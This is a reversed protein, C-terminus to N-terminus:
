VAAPCFISPARRQFLFAALSIFIGKKNIEGFPDKIMITRVVTLIVNLFISVRIAISSIFFTVFCLYKMEPAVYDWDKLEMDLNIYLLLCAVTLCSGVSVLIDALSLLFYILSVVESRKKRYFNSVIGNLFFCIIILILCMVIMGTAWPIDDKRYTYKLYYANFNMFEAHIGNGCYSGHKRTTDNDKPNRM